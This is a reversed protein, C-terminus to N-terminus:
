CTLKKYNFAVINSNASWLWIRRTREKRATTRRRRRRLQACTPVAGDLLCAAEGESCGMGGGGWKEEGIPADLGALVVVVVGGRLVVVGRRLSLVNRLLVLQLETLHLCCRKTSGLPVTAPFIYPLDGQIIWIKLAEFLSWLSILHYSPWNTSSRYVTSGIWYQRMERLIRSIRPGIVMGRISDACNGLRWPNM